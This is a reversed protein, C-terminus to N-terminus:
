IIAIRCVARLFSVDGAAPHQGPIGTKMYVITHNIKRKCSRRRRHQCPRRHYPQGAPVTKVSDGLAKSEIDRMMETDVPGPCVCNVNVGTSALELALSKAVGAVAHKSSIYPSMGPSGMFSAGSAIVVISGSGQAALVQAAYKMAFIAGFVNINYVDMFNEKTQMTLPLISGEFGANNVLVDLRGYHEVTKDVMAKVEDENRVDVVQTFLHDEAIDLTATLKDLKAQKTSTISLKCGEAAFARTLATGIGGTSGTILVVKDKLQLDM